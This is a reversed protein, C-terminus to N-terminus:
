FCITVDISHAILFNEVNYIAYGEETAYCTVFEYICIWPMLFFLM